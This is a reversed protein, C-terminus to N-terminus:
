LGIKRISFRSTAAASSTPQGDTHARVVDGAVLRLTTACHATFAGAAVALVRTKRHAATINGITTSLQNSNVSVGIDTNGSSYTDFYDVAYLGDGGAAITASFGNAASDAGVIHTGAASETTTFRRIKDNTSGHGNGTTMVLAHDGVAGGLQRLTRTTGDSQLLALGGPLVSGIGTLTATHAPADILVNYGDGLSAASDVTFTVNATIRLTQGIDAATITGDAARSQVLSRIEADAGDLGPQGELVINWDAAAAPAPGIYDFDVTLLNTGSNYNYIVGRGWNTLHAARSVVAVRMGAVAARSTEGYYLSIRDIAPTFNTTSTGNVNAANTAAAASAAASNASTSANGAYTGAQNRLSEAQNRFEEAAGVAAVAEGANHEVNAAVAEVEDAWPDLAASWPYARANFTSRDAPDPAPPLASVEPPTIVAM